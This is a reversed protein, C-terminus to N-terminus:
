PKAPVLYDTGIILRFGDRRNTAEAEKSTGAAIPNREGHSSTEIRVPDIGQAVLYAKAAASRREGLAMNYTDSARLDANGMIVIRMGPNARFVAVKADLLSKSEPSLDSKDTAFHIKEEMTALAAASSAPMSAPARNLSDRLDRYDQALRRRRAQEEASVSDPRQVYPAAAVPVDVIRVTHNPSRAFTMGVQLRQNSKWSYNALWDAVADVRIAAHDSVAFKAGLLANVGYSHLFSAETSGGAGAGLLISVAGRHMLTNVLRGSLMAVNADAAGAPRSAKMEGGEFEVAWNPDLYAGVHGGVGFGSNLTLSKNFMGGSGFAGFEVTGREQAAAPIACMLSAAGLFIMRRIM